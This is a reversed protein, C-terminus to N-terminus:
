RKDIIKIKLKGLFLVIDEMNSEETLKVHYPKAPFEGFTADVPVFVGDIYVENWAHYLFGRYEKSYVVGGVIKAPIDVSRLLAATLMSHAECEGEKTKLVELASSKDRLKKRINKNVWGAILRAKEASTKATGTISQALNKIEPEDKQVKPTKALYPTLDIKGKGPLQPEGTITVVFKGTQKDVKQYPGSPVNVKGDLGSLELTLQRFDKDLPLDVPIFSISLVDYFSIAKDDLKLADKKDLKKMTFGQVSQEKYTDGDELVYSTIEINGLKQNLPYVVKGGEMTKEGVTVTLNEFKQMAEVYVRFKYEKGEKIGQKWVIFGAGSLPLFDEKIIEEQTKGASVTKLIYESGRRAATLEMSSEGIKQSYSFFITKYAKDMVMEEKLVTYLKEGELDIKILADGVLYHAKEGDLIIEYASGHFYGVKKDQFFLGMYEDKVNKEINFAPRDFSYGTRSQCSLILFIIGLLSFLHKTKHNKL